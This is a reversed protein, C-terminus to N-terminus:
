ERSALASLAAQVAASSRTLASGYAVRNDADGDSAQAVGGSARVGDDADGDNTRTVAHLQHTPAARSVSGIASITM